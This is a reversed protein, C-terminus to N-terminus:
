GFVQKGKGTIILCYLSEQILKEWASSCGGYCEFQPVLGVHTFRLQTKNNIETIDFIIKTGTWETKNQTFNLQSATVLWVVKQNPVFEEIMQKSYHVDKMRYIFEDNLKDTNGEIEGQWWSSVNNVADFVVQPTQNVFFTTTFEGNALAKEDETQPNEKSNPQGKGTTILNYLSLQIYTNWANECIDYCEYKPVLGIQTFCLQTKGNKPSIEFVLKNGKWEEKDKTFSFYNDLVEWVIKKCEIFEVIKMKCRHIDQYHYNWEDNLSITNGEIEESWWGRVNNVANFVEESTQNVLFTTTFDSTAM